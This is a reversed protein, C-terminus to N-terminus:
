SGGEVVIKAPIKFQPMRMGAAPADPLGEFLWIEYSYEGPELPCPLKVNESDEDIPISQYGKGTKMFFPRLDDCTFSSKVSEPFVVSGDYDAAYNIWVVSGGQLVRATEPHVTSDTFQVM